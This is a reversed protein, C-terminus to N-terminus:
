QSSLLHEADVPQGCTPCVGHESVWGEVEERAAALAKDVDALSCGLHAREDLAERLSDIIEELPGTDAPEQPAALKRLLEIEAARSAVDAEARQMDALLGEIRQTDRFEPPAELTSLLDRKAELSAARATERALERAIDELPRTEYFEPPANLSALAECFAEQHRLEREQRRIEGLADGLAATKEVCERVDDHEKELARARAALEDLPELAAILQELREISASLRKERRKAETVHNRHRRQMEMLAAADSSSAFFLAAKSGPQALLFIPSKQEGFHVDFTESETEVEPLRLVEHLGEPVDGKLRHIDEGDIRYSVVSGKRRWEVVHGDDTEVAVGAEKAGHRVMYDGRENTCLTQLASVVASKGCNNEGVLVTLGDAPEIVTHTHSMYNELIIRKIM